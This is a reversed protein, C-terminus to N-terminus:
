NKKKTGDIRQSKRKREKKRKKETSAFLACVNSSVSRYM